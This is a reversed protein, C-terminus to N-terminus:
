GGWILDHHDTPCPFPSRFSGKVPIMRRRSPTDSIPRSQRGGGSPTFRSFNPEGAGSVPPKLPPVWSLLLQYPNADALPIHDGHYHSIVIDTADPMAAIIKERVAAGVAVQCPHPLHGHRLYGLAVGPDILIRRAGTEIMCSLGRVGLSETGIITIDM